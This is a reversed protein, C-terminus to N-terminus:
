NIHVRAKLVSSSRSFQNTLALMVEARDSREKERERATQREIKWSIHPRERKLMENPKIGASNKKKKRPREAPANISSQIRDGGKVRERERERERENRFAVLSVEYNHKRM